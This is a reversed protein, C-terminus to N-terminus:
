QLVTKVGTDKILFASTAPRIAPAVTKHLSSLQSSNLIELLHHWFHWYPSQLNPSFTSVTHSFARSRKPRMYDTTVGALVIGASSWDSLVDPMSESKRETNNSSGRDSYPSLVIDNSLLSSKLLSQKNSTCIWSGISLERWTEWVTNSQFFPFKFNNVLTEKLKNEQSGQNAPTM